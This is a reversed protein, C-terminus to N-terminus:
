PLDPPPLPPRLTDAQLNQNISDGTDFGTVTEIEERVTFPESILLNVTEGEFLTDRDNPSYGIIRNPEMGATPQFQVSGIRLGAERLLRQGEALRLGVIDPIAVRQQGLGDSVVLDIVTGREVEAGNPISQRLVANRFRSSEFTVNGVRLGQNQLQIRANNLSLNVLEPVTVMPRDSTSITLYVTRNPKVISAGTPSQDIVYEAPFAEHARRDSIVVRLGNSTLLEKAEDLSVKRVDPVTVGQSYKTYWPMVLRDMTFVAAAVFLISGVIFLWFGSSKLLRLIM